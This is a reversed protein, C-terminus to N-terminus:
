SFAEVKKKIWTPMQLSSYAIFKRSSVLWSRFLYRVTHSPYLTFIRKQAYHPGTSLMSTHCLPGISISRREPKANQWSGSFRLRSFSIFTGEMVSMECCNPFFVRSARCVDCRVKFKQSFVKAPSFIGPFVFM